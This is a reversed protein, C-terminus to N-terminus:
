GIALRLKTIAGILMCIASQVQLNGKIVSAQGFGNSSAFRNLSKQIFMKTHQVETTFAPFALWKGISERNADILNFLEEAHRTELISVNANSDIIAKFMNARLTLTVKCSKM